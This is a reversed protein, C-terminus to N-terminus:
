LPLLEEPACFYADGNAFKVRITIKEDDDDMGFGAVHGPNLHDQLPDLEIVVRGHWFQQIVGINNM